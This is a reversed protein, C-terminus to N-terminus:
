VKEEGTINTSWGLLKFDKGPETAFKLSLARGKGRLKNRTTVVEFGYNFTDTASDPIYNRLLRYAQFEKGFRGSVNSNAWEWRSEVIVSSENVAILPDIGTFGTETREMHITLYTVKKARQTDQMTEQGTILFANADTGRENVTFWDLFNDDKYFSYTFSYTSLPANQVSPLVALYKTKRDGRSRVISSFVVNDAGTNSVINDGNIAVVNNVVTTAIVDPIPLYHAVYPCIGGANLLVTVYIKIVSLNDNTDILTTGAIKGISVNDNTGLLVSGEAKAIDLSM